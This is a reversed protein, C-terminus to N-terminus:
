EYKIDCAPIKPCTELKLEKFVQIPMKPLKKGKLLFEIYSCFLCFSIMKRSFFFVFLRKNFSRYMNINKKLFYFDENTFLQMVQVKSMALNRIISMKFSVTKYYFEKEYINFLSSAKLLEQISALVFIIDNFKKANKIHVISSNNTTRYHYLCKNITTFKKAKLLLRSNIYIDEWMNIGDAWFINNNYFLTRKFCKNWVYGRLKDTLFDRYIAQNNGTFEQYKKITKSAKEEYYGFVVIDSDHGIACNYVTEFYDPEVWDDSDVCCIYEGTAAKLATNRAAALGQNQDHNIVSINLSSFKKILSELIAISNDKTCDNVFIFECENAITNTFLSLCCKEIYKEVGYIPILVSIKHM